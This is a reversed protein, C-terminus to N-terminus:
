CHSPSFLVSVVANPPWTASEGGCRCHVCMAFLVLSVDARDTSVFVEADHTRLTPSLPHHLFKSHVLTEDLDVVVTLKGSDTFAQPPLVINSSMHDFDRGWYAPQKGPWPVPICFHVGCQNMCLEMYVHVRISGCMIVLRFGVGCVPVRSSLSSWLAAVVTVGDPYSLRPVMCWYGWRWTLWCVDVACVNVHVCQCMCM